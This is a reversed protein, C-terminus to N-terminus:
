VPVRPAGRSLTYRPSESHPCAMWFSGDQSSLTLAKWYPLPSPSQSISSLWTAILEILWVDVIFCWYFEPGWLKSPSVESAISKISVCASMGPPCRTRIEYPSFLLFNADPIRVSRGQKDRGKASESKWEATIFSYCYTCQKWHTGHASRM